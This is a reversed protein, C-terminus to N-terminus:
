PTRIVGAVSLFHGLISDRPFLNLSQSPLDTCIGSAGRFGKENTQSNEKKHRAELCKRGWLILTTIPLM